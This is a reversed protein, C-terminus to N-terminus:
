RTDDRVENSTGCPRGNENTMGAHILPRARSTEPGVKEHDPPKAPLPARIRCNHPSERRDLRLRERAWRQSTFRHPSRVPQLEDDSAPSLGTRTAALLGPLLSGANPSVGPTSACRRFGRQPTKGETTPSPTQSAQHLCTRGRHELHRVTRALSATPMDVSGRDLPPALQQEGQGLEM